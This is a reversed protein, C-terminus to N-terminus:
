ARTPYPVVCLAITMQVFFHYGGARTAQHLCRPAQKFREL